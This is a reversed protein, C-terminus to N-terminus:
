PIRAEVGYRRQLGQGLAVMWRGVRALARQYLRVRNRRRARVQRYLRLREAERIRLQRYERVVDEYLWWNGLM